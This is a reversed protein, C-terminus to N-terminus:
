LPIEDFFENINDEPEPEQPPSGVDILEDTYTVKNEMHKIVDIRRLIQNLTNGEPFIEHPPFECTIFIEPSNFYIMGGKTEVQIAYSDLLRLLYRFSQESKDWTYDDLIVRKQQSYGNWWKTGMHIYIDKRDCGEHATLTKGTGTLGWLWTVTPKMSRPEMYLEALREINKGYKIIAEPKATSVARIGGDKVLDAIQQLDNRKGQHSLTGREVFKGEKKCYDSAQLPSGRRIELHGRNGLAKKTSSMSKADKFEIYGQIHPTGEAGVEDGFVIYTCEINKCKEKEEDTPNNITFCWNRSRSM